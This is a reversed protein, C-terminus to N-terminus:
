ACATYDFSLSKVSSTTDSCATSAIMGHVDDRAVDEEKFWDREPIVGDFFEVKFPLDSYDDIIVVGQRGTRSIVVSDGLAPRVYAGTIAADLERTCVDGDSKGCSEFTADTSVDAIMDSNRNDQAGICDDPRVASELYEQEFGIMSNSRYAAPLVVEPLAKAVSSSSKRPVHVQDDRRSWSAHMKLNFYLRRKASSNAAEDFVVVHAAQKGWFDELRLSGLGPIGSITWSIWDIRCSAFLFTYCCTKMSHLHNM